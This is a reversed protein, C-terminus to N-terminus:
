KQYYGPKRIRNKLGKPLHGRLFADGRLVWDRLPQEPRGRFSTVHEYDSENPSDPSFYYNSVCCRRESHRIQQVSHWSTRNTMMIVLRDCQYPITRCPNRLGEDWLELGGGSEPNWNPTVYYLLNLVRYHKRDRDHSNDLHPNLFDGDEMASIGGAYLLSDPLLSEIGTIESILAVVKPEQFAYIIEEILPSFQDLQIGVHKRERLGKLLRMEQSPPFAEYIMQAEAEGLLHDVVCSQIRDRKAFETQLESRCTLLQTCIRDAYASRTRKLPHRVQSM